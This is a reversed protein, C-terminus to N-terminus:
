HSLLKLRLQKLDGAVSADLLENNVAITFGGILDPNVQENFEATAKAPLHNSVLTKIRQLEAPQLKAASTIDVKYIAHSSRYIDVYALAIDRLYNMRRNKELLSVLDGVMEGAADTSEGIAASVLAKKDAADLHPNAIAKQMDPHASFANALSTMAGYLAEDKGKESALLYLAKAYRRPILGQNM